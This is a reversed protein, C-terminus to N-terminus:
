TKDEEDDEKEDAGLLWGRISGDEHTWEEPNTPHTM